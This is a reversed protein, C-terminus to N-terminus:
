RGRSCGAPHCRRWGCRRMGALWPGAAAAKGIHDSCSRRRRPWLPSGLDDLSSTAIQSLIQTAWAPITLGQKDAAIECLKAQEASLQVRVTVPGGPHMSHGTGSGRAPELARDTAREHLSARVQHRLQSTSWGLEEAKRLWFDQEPQPLSAVEAHHGFSLTERRRSLEFRRAVWVYNRLTQYVLGTREVAKQYRSGYNDQGYALWDGLCWASSTAVASLQQGVSLWRQFPLRAPFQLGIRPVLVHGRPSVLYPVAAPRPDPRIVVGDIGPTAALGNAGGGV